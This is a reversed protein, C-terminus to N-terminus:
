RDAAKSLKTADEAYGRLRRAAHERQAPTLTKDLDLLLDFYAALQKQAAGAYEPARGSDWNETWAALRKTAEKARLMAVLEAQRRKRDRDRLEETLPISENYRKVREVQADSLSGLWDELREINRKLRRERKREPTGDLFDRAFKRNDEALRREFHAVQRPELRDLLPGAETGAARLAERVQVRVADYGWVLDERTAPRGIRVAIDELLKAYQPLAKGRHWALLAAIRGDLEEVQPGEFDFYSNAQWRIWTDANRYGIQIASCGGLALLAVGSLLGRWSM